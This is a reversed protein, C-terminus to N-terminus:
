TFVKTINKKIDEEVLSALCLYNAYDLLLHIEFYWTMPVFFKKWYLADLIFTCYFM